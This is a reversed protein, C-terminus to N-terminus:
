LSVCDVFCLCVCVNLSYSYSMICSFSFSFSSVCFVFFLQGQSFSTLLIIGSNFLVYIDNRVVNKNTKVKIAM